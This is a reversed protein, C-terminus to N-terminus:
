ERQAPGRSEQCTSTISGRSGDHSPRRPLADFARPQTKPAKAVAPQAQPEPATEGEEPLCDSIDEGDAAIIAIAKSVAVTEGAPVLIRALVGTAPAEVFNTAKESEVEVIQDGQQVADGEHKLWSCVVGERMSMGWKPMLVNTAM